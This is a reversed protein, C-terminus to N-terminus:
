RVIEKRGDKIYIGRTPHAVPRGMLDYYPTVTEELITDVSTGGTVKVEMKVSQDYPDCVYIRDIQETL